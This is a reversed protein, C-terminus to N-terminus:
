YFIFIKTIYNINGSSVDEVPQYMAQAIDNITEFPLSGSVMSYLVVGMSWVDVEPGRYKKGLVM